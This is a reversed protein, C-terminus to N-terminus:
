IDDKKEKKIKTLMERNTIWDFVCDYCNKFEQCVEKPVFHCVGRIFSDLEDETFLDGWEKKMM